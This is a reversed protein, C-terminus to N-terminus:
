LAADPVIDMKKLCWILDNKLDLFDRKEGEIRGILVIDLHQHKYLPLIEAAAARLRRKVRNRTVALKSVRKSVTFGVRLCGVENSATEVIMGKSVWKRGQKDKIAQQVRLFDARKRLRAIDQNKNETITM